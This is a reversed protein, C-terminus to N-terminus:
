INLGGDLSGGKFNDRIFYPQSKWNQSREMNRAVWSNFNGPVSNVAQSSKIGATSQGAFERRELENMEEPTLTITIVHCLCQPHWGKFNFNKPYKGKLEDCIDYFDPPRSKSLKVEYGVIFDFQQMREMDSQRYAMNIESRTLRM